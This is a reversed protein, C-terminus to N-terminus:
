DKNTKLDELYKKEIVTLGTKWADRLLRDNNSEDYQKLSLNDSVIKFIHLNQLICAIYYGEMDVAWDKGHIEKKEIFDDATYLIAKDLKGKPSFPTFEIHKNLDKVKKAEFFRKVASIELVSGIKYFPSGAYGINIFETNEIDFSKQAKFFSSIAMLVNSVGIGTVLMSMGPHKESVLYESFNANYIEKIKMNFKTKIYKAESDMAVIFVIKKTSM